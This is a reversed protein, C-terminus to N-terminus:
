KTQVACRSTANTVFFARDAMPNAAARALFSRQHVGKCRSIRGIAAWIIALSAILLMCFITRRGIRRGEQTKTKGL